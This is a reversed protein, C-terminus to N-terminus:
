RRHSAHKAKEVKAEPAGSVHQTSKLDPQFPLGAPGPLGRPLGCRSIPSRRVCNLMGCGPTNTWTRRHRHIPKAVLQKAKRAAGSRRERRRRSPTPPSVREAREASELLPATTRGHRAEADAAFIRHSHVHREGSWGSPQQEDRQEAARRGRPRNGRASCDPRAATARHWRRRGIESARRM